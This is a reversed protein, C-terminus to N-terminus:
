PHQMHLPWHTCNLTSAPAICTSCASAAPVVALHSQQCATDSIVLSCPSYPASAKGVGFPIPREDRLPATVRLQQIADSQSSNSNVGM